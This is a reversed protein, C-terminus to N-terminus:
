PRLDITRRRDDVWEVDGAAFRTPPVRAGPEVVLEGVSVPLFFSLRVTATAGRALVIDTAIAQTPGDAGRVVATGEALTLRRADFPANVAVLGLYTGAAVEHDPHPGAVYEPEGEPTTNRIRIALDVRREDGRTEGVAIDADVDLFPDLKNGGRNLVSVVLSRKALRGSIDASEWGRQEDPHRSWALVHRGAAATSLENALTPLDIRGDEVADVVAGAIGGLEERRRDQSDGSREDYTLGVYQDHLLRREVEGAGIREGEVEVPGTASLLAKLAIVDVALVGDIRDGTRAEWMAAAVPASAEFRPSMALNRWDQGPETWGWLEGLDGELPVGPPALALDGAPLMEGLRIEGADTELLGISLFMGSAARMEANNAALLLYRRDSALFGTVAATVESGRRLDRRSEEVQARLDERADHLPGLLGKAPGLDVTELAQGAETAAGGIRRLAALRAEGSDPPPDIADAVERAAHSGAGALRGASGALAVASRHQRGLVPLLRVPALLPHELRDRGRRFREEARELETALSGDRLASGDLDDRAAFSIAKAEQLDRAALAGLAGAVVVWLLGALAVALPWRRRRSEPQAIV